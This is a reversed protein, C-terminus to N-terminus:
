DEQPNLRAIEANLIGAFAVWTAYPIFASAAARDVKRAAAIYSIIMAEL